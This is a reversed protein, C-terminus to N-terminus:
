DHTQTPESLYGLRGRRPWASTQDQRQYALEGRDNPIVVLVYPDDIPDRKRIILKGNPYRTSRIQLNAVDPKKFQNINPEFEIGLFRAAAIEGLVGTVENRRSYYGVAGGAYLGQRRSESYIRDAVQNAYDYDEITLTVNTL